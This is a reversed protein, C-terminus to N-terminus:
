EKRMQKLLLEVVGVGSGSVSMRWLKRGEPTLRAQRKFTQVPADPYPIKALRKAARLETSHLEVWAGPEISEYLKRLVARENATLDELNM